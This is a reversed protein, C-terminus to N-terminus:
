ETMSSQSPDSTFCNPWTFTYRIDVHNIPAAPDYLPHATRSAIFGHLFDRPFLGLMAPALGLYDGLKQRMHALLEYCPRLCFGM